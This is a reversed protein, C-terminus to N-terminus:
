KAMAELEAMTKIVVQGNRVQEDAKDLKALYEANRAAKRMSQLMAESVTINNRDAYRQFLVADRENLDISLLM